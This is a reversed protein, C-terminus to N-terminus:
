DWNKLQKVVTAEMWLSSFLVTVVIKTFKLVFFLTKQAHIKDLSILNLRSRSKVDVVESLPFGTCTRMNQFAASLRLGPAIRLPRRSGSVKKLVSLTILKGTPVPRVQQLSKQDKVVSGCDTANCKM